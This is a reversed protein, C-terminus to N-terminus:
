KEAPGWKEWYAPLGLRTALAPFREDARLPRMGAAALRAVERCERRASSKPYLITVASSELGCSGFSSQWWFRDRTMVRAQITQWSKLAGVPPVATLSSM